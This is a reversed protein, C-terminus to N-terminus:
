LPKKLNTGKKFACDKLKKIFKETAGFTDCIM